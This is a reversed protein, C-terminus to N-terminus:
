ERWKEPQSSIAAISAYTGVSLLVSGGRTVIVANSHNFRGLVTFVPLEPVESLDIQERTAKTQEAIYALWIVDLRSKDVAICHSSLASCPFLM